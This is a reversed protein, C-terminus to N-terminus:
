EGGGVYRITFGGGSGDIQFNGIKLNKKIEAETIYLRKNSIYAVEEGNQLFSLKKPTFRAKFNSDKTEGIEIGVTDEDDFIGTKIYGGIEKVQENIGDTTTELRKYQQKIEDSTATIKNQTEVTYQGFESKAM